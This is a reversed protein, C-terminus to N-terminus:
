PALRVRTGNVEAAPSAWLKVIEAALDDVHTFGPFKGEPKAEKMADTLLAKVVLVVAAANDGRKKFGDALALTWAEAAAKAAGYAANGATPASAATASILVFRGDGAADLAEHFALSTHQTTQVLLKHLLDWDELKTEGFSKSGRWGGVLHVVGDVRGHEARVSEAFAKTAELDLLDVAAPVARGPEVAAAAGREANEMTTDVGIVTAGAATLARVVAGGAGGGAGAVVVVSETNLSM